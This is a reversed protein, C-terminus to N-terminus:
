NGDDEKKDKKEKGEQEGKHKKQWEERSKNMEEESEPQYKDVWRIM